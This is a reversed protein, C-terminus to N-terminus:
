SRERGRTKGIQRVLKPRLGKLYRLARDINAQKKLLDEVAQDIRDLAGIPDQEPEVHLLQFFGAIEKLKYGIDVGRLVGILRRRDARSYLRQNRGDRAPALLGHEEYVHLARHTVDFEEALERITYVRRM